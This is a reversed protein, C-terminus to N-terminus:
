SSPQSLVYTVVATASHWDYNNHSDFIRSFGAARALRANSVHHISVVVPRRAGLVFDHAYREPLNRQRMAAKMDDLSVRGDRDHDM